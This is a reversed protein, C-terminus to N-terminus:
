AAVEASENVVARLLAETAVSGDDVELIPVVRVQYYPETAVIELVQLRRQGQAWVQTTGDPLRLARNIVAETAIPFLDGMELDTLSPDRQTVVAMDLGRQTAEDVALVSSRRGVLIPAAVNPFM